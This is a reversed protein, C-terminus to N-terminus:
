RHMTSGTRGRTDQDAPHNLGGLRTGSMRLGRDAVIRVTQVLPLPEDPPIGGRLQQGGPRRRSLHPDLGGGEQGPRVQAAVIAEPAFPRQARERAAGGVSEELAHADAPGVVPHGLDPLGCALPQPGHGFRGLRAHHGVDQAGGQGVPVRPAPHAVPAPSGARCPRWGTPPPGACAVAATTKSRISSPAATAARDCRM